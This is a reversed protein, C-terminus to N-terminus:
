APSQSITLTRENGLILTAGPSVPLRRGREILTTSGNAARVVTGNTSFTDEAWVGDPGLGVKLHVRSVSGTPSDVVVAREGAAVGAPSRGIVLVDDLPERQGLDTTLWMTPRPPKRPGSERPLMRTPSPQASAEQRETRPRPVQQSSASMDTASSSPPAQAVDGAAARRPNFHSDGTSRPPEPAAAPELGAAARRPNLVDAAPAEAIPPETPAPSGARPSRLGLPPPPPAPPPAQPPQQEPPPTLLFSQADFPATRHQTRSFNSQRTPEAPPPFSQSQQPPLPQGQAPFPSQGQPPFPPQGQPPFYLPQGQPAPLPQGQPPPLPQGQPPPLPQGQWPPPASQGQSPLLPQAPPIQAGFFPPASQPGGPATAGPHQPAVRPWPDTASPPQYPSLPAPSSSAPALSPPSDSLRDPIVPPGQPPASPLPSSSTRPPQNQWGADQASLQPASPNPAQQPLVPAPPAPISAWPSYPDVHHAGPAAGSEWGNHPELPPWGPTPIAPVDQKATAEDFYSGVPSTSYPSAAAAGAGTASDTKEESTAEVKRHINVVATGAVRDVWDQGNRQFSVVILPGLVTLHLACMLLDHVLQRRLGPAQDTTHRTAATGTALLGPSKGTRARVLTFVAAVEVLTMAALIPSRRLWWVAGVIAAICALDAVYALVRRLSEAPAFVLPAPSAESAASTAVDPAKSSAEFAPPSTLQTHTM